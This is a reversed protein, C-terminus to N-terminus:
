RPAKELISQVLFQMYYAIPEDTESKLPFGIRDFLMTTAHVCEHVLHAVDRPSSRHLKRLNMAVAGSPKDIVTRGNASGEAHDLSLLHEFEDPNVLDPYNKRVSKVLEAPSAANAGVTIQHGYIPDNIVLIV